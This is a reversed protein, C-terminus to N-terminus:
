SGCATAPAGSGARVGAASSSWPSIAPSAIAARTTTGSRSARTVPCTLPLRRTPEGFHLLMEAQESGLNGYLERARRVREEWAERFENRATQPYLDRVRWFRRIFDERQYEERLSLFVEREAESLLLEVDELWREHRPGLPSQPETAPESAALAALAVLAVLPTLKATSIKRM